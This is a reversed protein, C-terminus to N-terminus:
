GPQTAKVSSVHLITKDRLVVKVGHAGELEAHSVLNVSNDRSM